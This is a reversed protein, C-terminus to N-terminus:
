IVGVLEMLSNGVEVGRLALAMSLSDFIFVPNANYVWEFIAVDFQANHALM